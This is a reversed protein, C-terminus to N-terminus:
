CNYITDANSLSEALSSLGVCGRMKLMRSSWIMIILGAPQFHVVQFLPRTVLSSMPRKGRRQPGESPPTMDVDAQHCIECTSVPPCSFIPLIPPSFRGFLDRQSVTLNRSVLFEVSFGNCFFRASFLYHSRTEATAAVSDCDCDSESRCRKLLM